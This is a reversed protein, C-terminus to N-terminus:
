QTLTWTLPVTKPLYCVKDDCAQYRLSGKITLPGSPPAGAIAIPQTIRFPKSYVRQTLNLPEFFFKEAPPFEPAAAKIAPNPELTLAVPIGEKEGPAYVHMKPKPAIEVVLSLKAGPAITSASASPVVTLHPTEIAPKSPTSSQAAFLLVAVVSSTAIAHM